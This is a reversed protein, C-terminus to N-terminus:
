IRVSRIGIGTSHPWVHTGHWSHPLTKPQEFTPITPSALGLCVELAKNWDLAEHPRVTKYETRYSEAHRALDLGDPIYALHLREYKLSGFGLERSGNRGPSRVRPM